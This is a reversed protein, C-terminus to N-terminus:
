QYDCYRDYFQVLVTKSKDRAVEDFNKGVLIKVPTANWDKPIDQTVFDDAQNALKAFQKLTQKMERYMMQESEERTLTKKPSGKYKEKEVREMEKVLAQMDGNVTYVLSIFLCVVPLYQM